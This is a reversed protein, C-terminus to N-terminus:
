QTRCSQLEAHIQLFRVDIHTQENGRYKHEIIICKYSMVGSM